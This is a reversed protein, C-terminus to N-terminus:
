SIIASRLSAIMSRLRSSSLVYNQELCQLTSAECLSYVNLNTQIVKFCFFPTGLVRVGQSGRRDSIFSFSSAFFFLSFSARPDLPTGRLVASLTALFFFGCLSASLLFIVNSSSFYTELSHGGKSCVSSVSFVCVHWIFSVFIVTTQPLDMKGM